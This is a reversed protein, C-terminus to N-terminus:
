GSIGAACAEFSVDSFVDTRSLENGDEDTAVFQLQLIAKAFSDDVEQLRPNEVRGLSLQFDDDVMYNRIKL